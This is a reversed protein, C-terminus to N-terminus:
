TQVTIKTFHAPATM